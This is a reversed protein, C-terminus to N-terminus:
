VAYSIPTRRTPESIHILSLRLIKRSIKVPMTKNGPISNDTPQIISGVIICSDAITIGALFFYKDPPHTVPLIGLFDRCYFPPTGHRYGPFYIQFFDPLVIIYGHHRNGELRQDNRRFYRRGSFYNQPYWVPYIACNRIKM